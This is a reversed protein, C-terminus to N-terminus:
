IVHNETQIFQVGFKDLTLYVEMDLLMIISLIEM